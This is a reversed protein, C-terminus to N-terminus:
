EFLGLLRSAVRAAGRGDCRDQLLRGIEGLRIPDAQMFRVAEPLSQLARQSWPGLHLGEGVAALRLSLPEQNDALSFTIGPLGLCAREWTTSGGSGVFLDARALRRAMDSVGVAIEVGEVGAWRSALGAGHPSGAGVVAELVIGQGLLLPYLLRLCAETANPQDSGGFSLLLRQLRGTRLPQGIRTSAFEPRLLAYEPGFLGPAEAPWWPRYRAAPDAHWNQDLLMDGQLPRDALDDIVLIRPKKAMPLAQPWRADFGYHDLILGDVGGLREILHATLRADATMDPQPSVEIREFGAGSIAASADGEARTQVFITAVDMERLAQALALCRM